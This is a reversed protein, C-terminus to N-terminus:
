NILYFMVRSKLWDVRMTVMDGARFWDFLQNINCMIIKLWSTLSLLFFKKWFERKMILIEAHLHFNLEVVFRARVVVFFFSFIIFYLNSATKVHFAELLHFRHSHISLSFQKSKKVDNWLFLYKMSFKGNSAILTMFIQYFWKLKQHHAFIM